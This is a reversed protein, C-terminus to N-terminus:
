QNFIVDGKLPPNLPQLHDLLIVLFILWKNQVQFFRFFLM